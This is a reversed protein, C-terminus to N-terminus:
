LRSGRCGEDAFGDVEGSGLLSFEGLEEFFVSGASGDLWRFAGVCGGEEEDLLFVSFESRHLIVSWHVGPRDFVM